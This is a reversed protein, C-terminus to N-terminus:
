NELVVASLSEANLPVEVLKGSIRLNVTIDEEARNLLVVGVTGDENKVAAAEVERGYVSCGMRLSGPRLTKAILKIYEYSPTRSFTGDEEYVLPAAFGGPVHRPGGTRDVMMNWDIWRQMGHNLDGLMDHAYDVADKFDMERPDMKSLKVLFHDEGWEELKEPPIDFALAKGPIHLGCSESHMLIKDPYKERLLSLAEFHDGSYWHYAFGSIMHATDAKMIEEIHEVLREKNHDWVFLEVKDTLGAEQMAPHLFDRVFIREQEGTWVCSDWNTAASAENQVSLMTVPIGEDLYAKVYKVLYKAWPGYYEPKLSGGNCRSPKRQATEAVKGGYVTEDNAIDLPPTKWVAPPSWPSLLVSLPHGAMAIAEKVVPLVWKRDRDISFTHLEPDAIPDKVAQYEELSYDCSDIPIRIFRADAGEPGFWCSLAKKRQEPEMQSLLYCASETMACGYGEFKQFLFDPYLGVVNQERQQQIRSEDQVTLEQTHLETEGTSIHYKATTLTAKM